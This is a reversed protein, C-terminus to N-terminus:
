RSQDCGLHGTALNVEFRWGLHGPDDGAVDHLLDQRDHHDRSNQAHHREDEGGPVGLAVRHEQQKRDHHQHRGDAHENTAAAPTALGLGLHILVALVVQAVQALHPFAGSLRRQFLARRQLPGMGIGGRQPRDRAAPPHPLTAAAVHVEAVYPDAPARLPQGGPQHRWLRTRHVLQFRDGRQRQALEDPGM